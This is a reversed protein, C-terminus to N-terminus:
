MVTVHGNCTHAMTIPMTQPMMEVSRGSVTAKRLLMCTRVPTGKYILHPQVLHLVGEAVGRVVCCRFAKMLVYPRSISRWRLNRSYKWWVFCWWTAAAWRLNSSMIDGASWPSTVHTTLWRHIWCTQTKSSVSGCNM